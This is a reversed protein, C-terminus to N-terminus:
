ARPGEAAEDPHDVFQLREEMRTVAFVRQVEPEGRVLVLRRGAARLTADALVMSRLGSSDMFRLGRLDIVVVAPGPAAALREVEPDLTTSGRVDLEGTLAVVVADPSESVDFTLAPM